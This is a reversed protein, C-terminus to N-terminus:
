HINELYKLTEIIREVAQDHNNYLLEQEIMELKERTNAIIQPNHMERLNKQVQIDLNKIHITGSNNHEVIPKKINKIAKATNIKEQIEKDTNFISGLQKLDKVEKLGLSDM